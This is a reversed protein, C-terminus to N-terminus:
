NATIIIHSQQVAASRIAQVARGKFNMTKKKYCVVGPSYLTIDLMFLELKSFQYSVRLQVEIVLVTWSTRVRTQTKDAVTVCKAGNVSCPVRTRTISDVM